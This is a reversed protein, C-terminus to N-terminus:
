KEINQTATKRRMVILGGLLAVIIVMFYLEPGTEVDTPNGPEIPIEPIKNEVTEGSVFVVCEKHTTPQTAPVGAVMPNEKLDYVLIATNQGKAPVSTAKYAAGDTSQIWEIEQGPTLVYGGISDLYLQDLQPAFQWFSEDDPHKIFTANNLPYLVPNSQNEKFLVKETATNNVWIDVQDTIFGDVSVTWGNFCQNCSYQDFIADSSCSVAPYTTWAYAQTTLAAFAIALLIKKFM